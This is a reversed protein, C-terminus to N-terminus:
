KYVDGRHAISLIYVIQEQHDIEFLIRYSGIRLRFRKDFGKLPRIDGTPPRVTLGLMAKQIRVQAAREQKGIFKVADRSLTLQYTSNM